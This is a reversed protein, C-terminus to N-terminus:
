SCERVSLTAYKVVTEFCFLKCRREYIGALLILEFMLQVSRAKSFWMPNLM